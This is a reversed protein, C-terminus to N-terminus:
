INKELWEKIRFLNTSSVSDGLLFVRLTSYPMEMKKSLDMITYERSQYISMLSERLLEERNKLERLNRVM